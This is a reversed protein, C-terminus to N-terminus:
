KFLSAFFIVADFYLFQEIQYVCVDRQSYIGSINGESVLQLFDPLLIRLLADYDEGLTDGRHLEKFFADLFLETQTVFLNLTEISRERIGFM